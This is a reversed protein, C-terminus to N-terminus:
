DLQEHRIDTARPGRKTHEIAFGVREGVWVVDFSGDRLGAAVFFWELSSDDVIFGYGHGPELRTISGYPM